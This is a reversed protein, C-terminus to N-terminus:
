DELYGLAKLADDLERDKDEARNEKGRKFEPVSDVWADLMTSMDLADDVQEGVVDRGEHPDSLINYLEQRGDSARSYKFEGLEIARWTARLPIVNASPYDQQLKRLSKPAVANFEAVVGDIQRSPEAALSERMGAPLALDGIEAVLRFTDAVSVPEANRGPKLGKPYHVIFPVRTLANNVAYKHLMLHREGLNEGHDSTIVVITNELRGRTELAALISATYRDLDRISADYVKSMIDLDRESYEHEGVMWAHFADSSQVVTLSEQADEESMVALRDEWTPVRPLHAEMMNIFAFYPGESKDVMDLFSQAAIPAAEKARYKSKSAEDDPSIWKPSVFTSADDEILKSNLWALARPKIGDDWPRVVTDFGQLLKTSSSIYPNANFAWTSYGAKRLAEAMTTHRKELRKHSADVGHTRVPLGTFLSAHSPLTWVGPSIAREYVVASDMWPMLDPTTEKDYGYLQLRDARVTDWVIVLVDPTPAVEPEPESRSFLSCGALFWLIV